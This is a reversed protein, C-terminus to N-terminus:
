GGGEHSVMRGAGPRAKGNRPTSHLGRPRVISRARCDEAGVPLHRLVRGPARLRIRVGRGERGVRHRTCPPADAARHAPQAWGPRAGRVDCAAVTRAIAVRRRLRHDLGTTRHRRADRGTVVLTPGDFSGTPPVLPFSGAYNADLRAVTEPDAVEVAAEIEEETRRVTEATIVVAVEEFLESGEVGDERFLVRHAPVDRQDRDAVMTVLLSLGTVRDPDAAAVGLALYGGYSGGALAFRGPALADIAARTVRFVDDTSCVSSSAPSRGMGPLDLYIRRWGPRGGFAPEFVAVNMRHDISFGHLFVAVHEAEGSAAGHEVYHIEAGAADVFPMSPWSVSRARLSTGLALSGPRLFSSSVLHLFCAEVM